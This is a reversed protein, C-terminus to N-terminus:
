KDKSWCSLSVAPLPGQPPRAPCPALPTNTCSLVPGQSRRADGPIYSGSSWGHTSCSRRWRPVLRGQSQLPARTLSTSCSRQSSIWCLMWPPTPPRSPNGMPAPADWHTPPTSPLCFSPSSVALQPPPARCGTSVGDTWERAPYNRQVQDVSRGVVDRIGGHLLVQTPGTHLVADGLSVAAQHCM